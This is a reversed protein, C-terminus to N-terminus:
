SNEINSHEALLSLRSPLIQWNEEESLSNQVFGEDKANLYKNLGVVTKEGSKVAEQKMIRTFKIEEQMQLSAYLHWWGGENEIDALKNKIAELLDSILNEVFFSGATPDLIKNLYSEELLISSVNRAMRMSFGGAKKVAMDFPVVQLANCGGIIAAMAETTNRLLNNYIDKQTKTWQSTSAYIFINETAVEVDYLRLLSQFFIRAAKVKAIEEFFESGIALGIFTKHGIEAPQLGKEILREALGIWAGFAYALEQVATAGANHYFSAGIGIVKFGPFDKSLSMLQYAHNALETKPNKTKLAHVLGGWMLAGSLKSPDLGSQDVYELFKKLLLVPESKPEIFVQIYELHVGSFILSFDENGSLEIRIADAGQQLAQLIEMNAPKEESSIVFHVNSWLRPGLGPIVPEPNVRNRYVFINELGISDEATYFPELRLGSITNSFLSKEYEKGKLDEVIQAKWVEKSVQPFDEFLNETM